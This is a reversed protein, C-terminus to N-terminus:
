KKRLRAIFWELSYKYDYKEWFILAIHWFVVNCTAFILVYIMAQNWGSCCTDLMRRLTIAILGEFIFVTLSVKSFRFIFKAKTAFFEKGKNNQFDFILLAIMIVFSFIGLLLYALSAFYWPSQGWVEARSVIKVGGIENIIIMGVIMLFCGSLSLFVLITKKSEKEALMIGTIAGFCGYAAFPFVPNPDNVLLAPILAFFGNIGGQNQLTAILPFTKGEFFSYRDFSYAYFSFFVTILLKKKGM